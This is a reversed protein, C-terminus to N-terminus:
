FITTEHLFIKPTLRENETPKALNESQSFQFNSFPHGSTRLNEVSGFDRQRPTEM